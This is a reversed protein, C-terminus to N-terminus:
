KKYNIGIYCKIMYILKAFIDYFFSGEFYKGPATKAM